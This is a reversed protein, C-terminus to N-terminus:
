VVDRFTYVLKGQPDFIKDFGCSDLKNNPVPIVNDGSQGEGVPVLGKDTVLFIFYYDGFYVDVTNDQVEVVLEINNDLLEQKNYVSVRVSWGNSTKITTEVTETIINKLDSM